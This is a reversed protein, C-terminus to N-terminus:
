LGRCIKCGDCVGRISSEVVGYFGYPRHCFKCYRRVSENAGKKESDGFETKKSFGQNHRCCVSHRLFCLFLGVDM